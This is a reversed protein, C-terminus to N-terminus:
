PAGGVVVRWLDPLSVGLGASIAALTVLFALHDIRIKDAVKSEAFSRLYGKENDRAQERAVQWRQTELVLELLQETTLARPNTPPGDEYTTTPGLLNDGNPM